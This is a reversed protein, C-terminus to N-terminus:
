KIIQFQKDVKIKTKKLIRIIKDTSNGNGYLFSRKIKKKNKKAYLIKKYIDKTDINCNFTNNGQERLDQRNGINVFPIAMYSCERIGSSSNGILCTSHYLIKLYDESEFNKYFNIKLNKEKERKSRLFKSILDSGADINPWIWITPIDLKKIAEFTKKVLQFNEKYFLTNPHILVVFYNKNLDVKYGVGFNYKKELDVKKKFDISKILDISTCGVNHIIKNDEGMQRVIKKSKATCVFHLNSLKTIAHRVKEDVSSTLEGGQIHVLFINMFASCIGTAMTEFRDGITVVINPELTRFASSLENTILSVSKTMTLHNEGEIHSYFTFNPKLGDKKLINLLNGYKNLVASSTLIIQLDFYSKEKKLKLLIPKLRAYNSRNYIVFCIKKKM